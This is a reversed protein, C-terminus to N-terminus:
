VGIDKQWLPTEIIYLPESFSFTRNRISSDDRAGIHEIYHENAFQIKFHSLKNADSEVAFFFKNSTMKECYENEPISSIAKAFELWHYETIYLYKESSQYRYILHGLKNIKFNGNTEGSLFFGFAKWTSHYESIVLYEDNFSKSNNIDAELEIMQQKFTTENLLDVSDHHIGYQQLFTNMEYKELKLYRLIQAYTGNYNLNNIFARFIKPTERELTSFLTDDQKM